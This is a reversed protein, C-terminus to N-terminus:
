KKLELENLLDCLEIQGRKLSPFGTGTLYNAVRRNRSQDSFDGLYTRLLLVNGVPDNKWTKALSDQLAQWETDIQYGKNKFM